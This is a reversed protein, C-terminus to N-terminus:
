PFKGTTEEMLLLFVWTCAWGTIAAAIKEQEEVPRKMMGNDELSRFGQDAMFELQSVLDKGAHNEFMGFHPAFDCVFAPQRVKDMQSSKAFVSHNGVGIATGLIAANRLFSRREM